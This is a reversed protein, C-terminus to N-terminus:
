EAGGFTETKHLVPNHHRGHRVIQLQSGAKHGREELRGLAAGAMKPGDVVDRNPRTDLHLGFDLPCHARGLTAAEHYSM